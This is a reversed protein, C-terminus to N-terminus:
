FEGLWAEAIRTCLSSYGCDYGGSFTLAIYVGTDLNEDGYDDAREKEATKIREEVGGDHGRDCAFDGFEEVKCALVAEKERLAKDNGALSQWYNKIM